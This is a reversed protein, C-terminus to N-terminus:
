KFDPTSVITQNEAFEYKGKSNRVDNVIAKAVLDLHTHFSKNDYTTLEGKPNLDLSSLVQSLVFGFMRVTAHKVSDTTPNLLIVMKETKPDITWCGDIDGSGESAFKSDLDKSSCSLESSSEPPLHLNSKFAITHGLSFYITQLNSPVASLARQLSAKLPGKKSEEVDIFATHDWEQKIGLVPQEKGHCDNAAVKNSGNAFNNLSKESSTQNSNKKCSAMYIAGAIIMTSALLNNSTRHRNCHFM